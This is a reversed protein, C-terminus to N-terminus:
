LSSDPIFLYCSGPPESPLSGAQQHQLCLLHLNSGALILSPLSAPKIGPHPLHGPFPFLLESWYEQRSFEMCLHAKHCVPAVFVFLSGPWRGRILRRQKLSRTQNTSELLHNNPSSIKKKKERKRQKLEQEETKLEGFFLSSGFGWGGLLLLFGPDQNEQKRQGHGQQTSGFHQTM